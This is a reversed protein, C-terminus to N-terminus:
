TTIGGTSSGGVGGSSGQNINIIEVNCCSCGNISATTISYTDLSEGVLCKLLTKSVTTTTNLVVVDGSNITVSNWIDNTTKKYVITDQCGPITNQSISWGVSSLPPSEPIGNITLVTNTTLTSTTPSPASSFLNSHNLKLNLSVGSPLPPTVNVTATVQNTKLTPTNSITTVVPTISVSYTVPQQSNVLTEAGYVINSNSDTLVLTYTGNCLNNFIASSSQTVGDDISYQYPPVGGYPQFIISGDCKCTPQNVIVEFGITPTNLCNGERSIINGPGGGLSYWGTLPPYSSNSVIQFPLTGGSVRWKNLSTDFIILYNTDDSIWSEYGNYIGNPNFHLSLDGGIVICFDYTQVPNEVPFSQNIKCLENYLYIVTTDDPVTVFYGSTLENLSIGTAPTNYLYKLAINNSNISNYYITYPGPSTGGTITVLYNQSM